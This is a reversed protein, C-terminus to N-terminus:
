KRIIEVVRDVPVDSSVTVPAKTQNISPLFSKGVVKDDKMWYLDLDVLTDQNWFTRVASDEFIFLMGDANDLNSVGMLGKTHETPDDAVLVKYKKGEIVVNQTNSAINSGNFFGQFYIFILIVVIFIPVINKKIM